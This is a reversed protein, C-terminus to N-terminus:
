NDARVVVLKEVCTSCEIQNSGGEVHRFNAKRAHGNSLCLDDYSFTEHMCRAHHVCVYMDDQSCTCNAQGDAEHMHSCM